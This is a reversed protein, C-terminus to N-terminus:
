RDPASEARRQWLVNVILWQRGFRAVHLYEVYPTSTVRVAAMDDNLDLITANHGRPYKTGRGAGTARVMDEAGITDLTPEAGIGERDLSRKVLNPHLSQRMREADGEFWSEIYDAAVRLIAERDRAAAAVTEAVRRAPQSAPPSHKSM